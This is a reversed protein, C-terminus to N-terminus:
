KQPQPPKQCPRPPTFGSLILLAVAMCLSTDAVNFSPWHRGPWYVVDIFDRVLGTQIRDYLNGAVGAAFLALAIQTIKWDQGAFLFVGIVVILAVASVGILLVRHNAAIGFAAGPNEALQLRLFGEIITYGGRGSSGLWNFVANKSWLDLILIGVFIPWFILHRLVSSPPRINQSLEKDGEPIGGRFTAENETM